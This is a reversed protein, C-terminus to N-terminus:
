DDDDSEREPNHSARAAPPAVTAPTSVYVVRTKAPKRVVKTKIRTRTKVVTSTPRPTFAAELYGTTSGSLSTTYLALGLGVSTTAALVWAIFARM